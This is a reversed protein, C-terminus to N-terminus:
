RVIRKLSVTWTILETDVDLEFLQGCEHCAIEHRYLPTNIPTRHTDLFIKAAPSLEQNKVFDVFEYNELQSCLSCTQKKM